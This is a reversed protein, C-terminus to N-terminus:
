CENIPKAKNILCVKKKSHAQQTFKKKRRRGEAPRFNEKRKPSFDKKKQQGGCFRILFKSVKPNGRQPQQL